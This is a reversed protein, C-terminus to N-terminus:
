RRFRVQNGQSDQLAYDSRAYAPFTDLVPPSHVSGVLARLELMWPYRRSTLSESSPEVGDIAAAGAFNRETIYEFRFGQDALYALSSPHIFGSSCVHPDIRHKQCTAVWLIALLDVMSKSSNAGRLTVGGSTWRVAEIRCESGCRRVFKILDEFSRGFLGIAQYGLSYTRVAHPRDKCSGELVTPESPLYYRLLVDPDSLAGGCLDASDGLQFVAPRTGQLRPWNMELADASGKESRPSLMITENRNRALALIRRRVSALRTESELRGLPDAFGRDAEGKSCASLGRLSLSVTPGGRSAQHYTTCAARTDGDVFALDAMVSLGLAALQPVRKLEEAMKRSFGSLSPHTLLSSPRVTAMASISGRTSLSGSDSKMAGEILRALREAETPNRDLDTSLYQNLWLRVELVQSRASAHKELAKEYAIAAVDPWNFNELVLATWIDADFPDGEVLPAIEAAVATVIRHRLDEGAASALSIPLLRQGITARQSVERIAARQAAKGVELIERRLKESREYKIEVRKSHLNVRSQGIRIDTALIFSSDDFQYPGPVPILRVSVTAHPKLSSQNMMEPTTVFRHVPFDQLWIQFEQAGTNLVRFSGGQLTSLRLTGEDSSDPDFDPTTLDAISATADTRTPLKNQGQWELLQQPTPNTAVFTWFRYWYDIQSADEKKLTGREISLCIIYDMALVDNASQRLIQIVEPHDVARFKGVAVDGLAVATLEVNRKSLALVSIPEKCKGEAREGAAVPASTGVATVPNRLALFALVALLVCV